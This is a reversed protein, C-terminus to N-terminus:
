WGSRCASRGPEAPVGLVVDPRRYRSAIPLFVRTDTILSTSVITAQAEPQSSTDPAFGAEVLVGALLSSAVTAALIIAFLHWHRAAPPSSLRETRDSM